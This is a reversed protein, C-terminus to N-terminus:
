RPMHSMDWVERVTFKVEAPYSKELMRLGTEVGRLAELQGAANVASLYVNGSDMRDIEMEAGGGALLQRVTCILVSVAACIISQGRPADGAHGHALFVYREGDWNRTIEIM